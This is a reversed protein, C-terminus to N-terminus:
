EGPGIMHNPDFNNDQCIYEFPEIGDLWALNWGGSWIEDYALPDDITAEYRLTYRATRTVREILHLSSTYPIGERTLWFRENFGVTDIVLTDGDWHGISHGFWTPRLDRPHPRGDMHITRWSHPGGVGVIIIEQTEPRDIIEIGYPTHWMRPGGSPKCRTHPDDKSLTARRYDYLARAWPKFPVQDIRLNTTLDWESAIPQGDRLNFAIAAPARGEWLGTEGPPAQFNVRGDAWRPVADSAGRPTEDAVQASVSLAAAAVLTTWAIGYRM